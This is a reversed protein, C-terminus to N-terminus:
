AAGSDPLSQLVRAKIRELSAMDEDTLVARDVCRFAADSQAETVEAFSRDDWLADVLVADAAEQSDFEVFGLSDECIWRGLRGAQSEAIQLPTLDASSVRVGM